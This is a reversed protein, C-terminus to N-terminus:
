PLREDGARASGLRARMEGIMEELRVRANPGNEGRLRGEYWGIEGALRDAEPGIRGGPLFRRRM